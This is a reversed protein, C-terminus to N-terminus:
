HLICIVESLNRCRSYCLLAATPIHTDTKPAHVQYCLTVDPTFSIKCFIRLLTLKLLWVSNEESQDEFASMEVRRQNM